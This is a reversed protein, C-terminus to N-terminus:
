WDLALLKMKKSTVYGNEPKKWIMYIRKGNRRIDAKMQVNQHCNLQEQKEKGAGDM